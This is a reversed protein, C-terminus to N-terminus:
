TKHSFLAILLLSRLAQGCFSPSRAGPTLFCALIPKQPPCISFFLLFHSGHTKTKFRKADNQRETWKFGMSESGVKGQKGGFAGEPAFGSGAGSPAPNEPTKNRRESPSFARQIVADSDLKGFIM